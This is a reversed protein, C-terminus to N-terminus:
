LIRRFFRVRSKELVKSLRKKPYIEQPSSILCSLSQYLSLAQNGLKDSSNPIFGYYVAM